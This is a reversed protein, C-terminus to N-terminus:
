CRAIKYKDSLKNTLEDIDKKRAIRDLWERPITNTGYFLGALGGVVAGTTDTDEGLNIAKLVAEKYSKTTLLCWISAELTHLVYGTSKIESEKLELIEGNTIREFLSVENPSIELMQTLEKFSHNAVAYADKLPYSAGDSVIFSAFEIYYFCSLCSRVHGHTISSVKKIIEYREKKDRIKQIEFMLPLIRMLSGNGNSNEEWSGTIEPKEGNKLRIIAERTSIGIDFVNGHPTWHNNYYWKVFSNGIAQLDFKKTLEDALCLTLSSDDSWTGVPQNYTGYGIMDTLPKDKLYERSKFEVPVGLADGVILGFLGDKVPNKIERESLFKILSKFNSINTSDIFEKYIENNQEVLFEKIELSGNNLDNVKAKYIEFGTWSSHIHLYENEFYIFWKDEMEFPISGLKLKQFQIETLLIDVVIKKPITMPITKWKDKTAIEM